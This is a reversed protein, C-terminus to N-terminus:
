GLQLDSLRLDAKISDQARIICFRDFYTLFSLVGLFAM